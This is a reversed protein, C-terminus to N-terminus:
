NRKWHALLGVLLPHADVRCTKADAGSCFFFCCVSAQPNGRAHSFDGCRERLSVLFNTSRLAFSRLLCPSSGGQRQWSISCTLKAYLHLPRVHTQPLAARHILIARGSEIASFFLLTRANRSDKRQNARCAFFNSTTTQQQCRGTTGQRVPTDNSLVPPPPKTHSSRCHTSVELLRSSVLGPVVVIRSQIEIASIVLHNAM